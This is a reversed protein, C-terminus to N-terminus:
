IAQRGAFHDLRSFNGDGREDLSWVVRCSLGLFGEGGEFVRVTTAGPQGYGCIFPLVTGQDVADHELFGGKGSYHM